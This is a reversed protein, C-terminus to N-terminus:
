RRDIESSGRRGVILVAVTGVIYAGVVIPMWTPAVSILCVFIGSVVALGDRFVERAPRSERIGRVVVVILALSFFALGIWSVARIGSM